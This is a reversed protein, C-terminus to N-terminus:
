LLLRAEVTQEVEERKVNYWSFQEEKHLYMSM